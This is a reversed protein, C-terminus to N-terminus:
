VTIVLYQGEVDVDFTETIYEGDTLQDKDSITVPYQRARIKNPECRSRGTRIDFEWGHWPCRIIENQRSFKYQGPEESEVLGVIRGKCLSAGQHPCRDLIGFFDGSLNFIAIQRGRIEVLKHDGPPIQDVKGIIYKPM